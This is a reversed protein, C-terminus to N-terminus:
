DRNTRIATLKAILREGVYVSVTIEKVGQDSASQTTLDQDDLYRVAVERQWHSKDSIDAGDKTQPPSANWTDYDDVDDYAARDTSSESSEIGFVATETPESYESNLIETMLDEALLQGISREATLRAAQTSAGLTRLAAVMMMGVIVTAVTVEALSVGHRHFRSPQSTNHMSTKSRHKCVPPTEETPPESFREVKRVLQKPPHSTNHTPTKSRHKCM